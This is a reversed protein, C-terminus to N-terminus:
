PINDNLFPSCETKISLTSTPPKLVYTKHDGRPTWSGIQREYKEIPNTWGGVLLADVMTGAGCSFSQRCNACWEQGSIILIWICEFVGPIGMSNANVGFMIVFDYLLM